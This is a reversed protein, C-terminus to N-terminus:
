ERPHTNAAIDASAVELAFRCAAVAETAWRIPNEGSDADDRSSLYEEIAVDLEAMADEAAAVLERLTAM